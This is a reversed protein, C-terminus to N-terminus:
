LPRLSQSAITAPKCDGRQLRRTARLREAIEHLENPLPEGLVDQYLRGLHAKLWNEFVLMESNLLRLEELRTLVKDSEATPGRRNGPNELNKAM